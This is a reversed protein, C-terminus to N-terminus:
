SEQANVKACCGSSHFAGPVQKSNLGKQFGAHLVVTEWVRNHEVFSYCTHAKRRCENHKKPYKSPHVMMWVTPGSLIWLFIAFVVDVELGRHSLIVGRLWIGVFLLFFVHEGKTKSHEQQRLIVELLLFHPAAPPELIFGKVPKLDAVPILSREPGLLAGAFLGTLYSPACVIPFWISPFWQSVCSAHYDPFFM